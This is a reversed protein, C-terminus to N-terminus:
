DWGRFVIAETSVSSRDPGIVDPEVFVARVDPAACRVRHRVDAIVPPLADVDAINTLAVRVGVVDVQGDIETTRVELIESVHVSELLATRVAEALISNTMIIEEGRPHSGELM